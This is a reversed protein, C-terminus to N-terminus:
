GFQKFLPTGASALILQVSLLLAVNVKVQDGVHAWLSLLGIHCTNDPFKWLELSTWLVRSLSLSLFAWKFWAVLFNWVGDESLPPTMLLWCGSLFPATTWSPMSLRKLFFNECSSVRFENREPGFLSIGHLKPTANNYGACTQKSKM